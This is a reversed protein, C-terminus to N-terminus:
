ANRLPTDTARATMGSIRIPRLIGPLAGLQCRWIYRCFTWIVLGASAGSDIISAIHVPVYIRRDLGRTRFIRLAFLLILGTFFVLQGSGGAFSRSM